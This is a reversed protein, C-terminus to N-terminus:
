CGVNRGSLPTTIYSSEGHSRFAKTRIPVPVVPQWGHALMDNSEKAARGEVTSLTIHFIMGDPRVTEGDVSVVLAEIGDRAAHGVIVVEADQPIENHDITLTIHSARVCPFIPAFMQLVRARESDPIMWGSFM